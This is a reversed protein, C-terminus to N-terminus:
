DPVQEPGKNRYAEIFRVIKDEDYADLKMLRTWAAVAIPADNQPRPTVIVKSRYRAALAELRDVLETDSPDRYSIWIGGHELNHIIVQDPIQSRHV